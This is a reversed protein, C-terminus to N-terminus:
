FQSTSFSNLFIVALEVKLAFIDKTETLSSKPQHQLFMKFPILLLLDLKLLSVFVLSTQFLKGKRYTPAPPLFFFFRLDLKRGGNKNSPAVEKVANSGNKGRGEVCADLDLLLGFRFIPM